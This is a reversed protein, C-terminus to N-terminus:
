HGHGSSHGHDHSDHPEKKASSKAGIYGGIATGVIPFAITGLAAGIMSRTTVYPSIKKEANGVKESTKTIVKKPWTWYLTKLVLPIGFLKAVSYPKRYLLNTTANVLADKRHREHDIHDKVPKYAQEARKRIIKENAKIYESDQLYAHILQMRDGITLSKLKNVDVNMGMARLKELEIDSSHALAYNMSKQARDIIAQHCNRLFGTVEQSLPVHLPDDENLNYYLYKTRFYADAVKSLPISEDWPDADLPLGVGKESFLNKKYAAAANYAASNKQKQYWNKSLAYTGLGTAAATGLAAWGVPGSLLGATAAGAMMGISSGGLVMAGRKAQAKAIKGFENVEMGHHNWAHEATHEDEGDYPFALHALTEVDRTAEPSRQTENRMYSLTNELEQGRLGQNELGRRIVEWCHDALVTEKKKKALETISANLERDKQEYFSVDELDIEKDPNAELFVRRIEMVLETMNIDSKINATNVKFRKAAPDVILAHLLPYETSSITDTDSIDQRQIMLVVDTLMKSISRIKKDSDVVKKKVQNAEDIVAQFQASNNTKKGSPDVVEDFHIFERDIGLDEARRIEPVTLQSPIGARDSVIYIDRSPGSKLGEQANRIVKNMVKVVEAGDAESFEPASADQISKLTKAAQLLRRNEKSQAQLKDLGANSNQLVRLTQPDRQITALALLLEKANSTGSMLNLVPERVELARQLTSRVQLFGEDPSRGVNEFLANAIAQSDPLATVSAGSADLYTFCENVINVPLSGIERSLRRATMASIGPRHRLLAPINVILTDGVGSFDELRVVSIPTLPDVVYSESALIESIDKDDLVKRFRTPLLIGAQSPRLGDLRRKIDDVTGSRWVPHDLDITIDYTNGDLTVPRRSTWNRSGDRPQIFAPLQTLLNRIDEESFHKFAVTLWADAIKKNNELPDKSASAVRENSFDRTLIKSLDNQNILGSRVRAITGIIRDRVVAAPTNQLAEFPPLGLAHSLVRWQQETSARMAEMNERDLVQPRAPIDAQTLRTKTAEPAPPTHRGAPHAHAAAGASPPHDGPNEPPHATM